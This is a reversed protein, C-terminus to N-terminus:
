NKEISIFPEYTEYVENGNCGFYRSNTSLIYINGSITDLMFLDPEETRAFLYYNDLVVGLGDETKLRFEGNGQDLYILSTKSEGSCQFSGDPNVKLNNKENLSLYVQDGDKIASSCSFCAISILAIFLIKRM